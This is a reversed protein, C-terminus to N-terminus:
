QAGLVRDLLRELVEHLPRYAEAPHQLLEEPTQVFASRSRAAELEAQGAQVLARVSAPTMELHFQLGLAQDNWVFAQHACAASEMLHVAGPPLEFTDGHWHFVILEDPVERMLRHRRGQPTLRVPFWGIEPQPGPYVRGGLVEALLQAGLCVGVVPRGAQLVAQLFAKEDRLWPYRDEEYVGMPGGMVVVGEVAEPAPLTEDAYFRTFSLRHGRQQAWHAIHAPGEFPVHQLVHLHM